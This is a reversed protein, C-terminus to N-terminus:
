AEGEKPLPETGILVRGGEVKLPFSQLCVNAPNIGQGGEVSFQWEHAKCILVGDETLHGEVLSVSQHPCIGDYAHFRGEHKVLLVEHEGVDFVDMEGDWLDDVACVDVYEIDDQEANPAHLNM